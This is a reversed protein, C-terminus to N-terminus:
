RHTASSWTASPNRASSDAQPPSPAFTARGCFRRRQRSRHILQLRAFTDPTFNTESAAYSTVAAPQDRSANSAAYSFISSAGLSERARVKRGQTGHRRIHGIARHSCQRPRPRRLPGLAPTAVPAQSDFAAISASAAATTWTTTSESLRNRSTNAPSSALFRFSPAREAHSSVCRTSTPSSTSQPRRPSANGIGTSRAGTARRRHPARDSPNLKATFFPFTHRQLFRHRARPPARRPSRLNARPCPRDTHLARRWPSRPRRPTANTDGPHAGWAAARAPRDGHGIPSTRRGSLGRLDRAAKGGRVWVRM